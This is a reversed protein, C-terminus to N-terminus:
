RARVDGCQLRHRGGRELRVRREAARDVIVLCVCRMRDLRRGRQRLQDDFRCESAREVEDVDRNCKPVVAIERLRQGM